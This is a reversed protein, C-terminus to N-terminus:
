EKPYFQPGAYIRDLNEDKSTKKLNNYPNNLKKTLELEQELRTKESTLQKVENKLFEIEEKESGERYSFIKQSPPPLEKLKNKYSDKIKKLSINVGGSLFGVVGFLLFTVLYAIINNM